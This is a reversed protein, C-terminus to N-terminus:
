APNKGRAILKRVQQVLEQPVEMWVLGANIRSVEVGELVDEGQRSDYYDAIAKVRNYDWAPPYVNPDKRRTKNKSKIM